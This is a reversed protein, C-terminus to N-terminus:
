KSEKKTAAPAHIPKGDLTDTDETTLRAPKFGKDILVGVDCYRIFDDGRYLMWKVASSDPAKYAYRGDEHAAFRANKWNLETM